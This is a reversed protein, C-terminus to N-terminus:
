ARLNLEQVYARLEEVTHIEDAHANVAEQIEEPLNYFQDDYPYWGRLFAGMTFGPGVVNGDALNGDNLM